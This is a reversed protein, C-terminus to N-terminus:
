SRVFDIHILEPKFAHRQVAHVKVKEKKGDVILTLAEGYFGAKSEFNKVINQDLAVSVPAKADGYIIAPFKSTARLRRSESKGHQKRAETNITIM